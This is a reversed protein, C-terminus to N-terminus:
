RCSVLSLGCIAYGVIVIIASTTVLKSNSSMVAENKTIRSDYDDLVSSWREQESDGAKISKVWNRPMAGPSFFIRPRAAIVALAMGILTVFAAWLAVTGYHHPVGNGTLVSAAAGGLIAAAAALFGAFTMARQDAAIATMLQAEVRKDARDVLDRLLSLDNTDYDSQAM